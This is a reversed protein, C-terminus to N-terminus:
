AFGGRNDSEFDFDFDFDLGDGGGGPGPAPASPPPAPPRPAAPKPSAPVQAAPAAFEIDVEFGPASPPPAPAPPAVPRPPAPRQAPAPARPAPRPSPPVARPPAPPVPQPRQAASPPGPTTGVAAQPFRWTDAQPDGLSGQPPGVDPRGPGVGRAYAHFAGPTFLRLVMARGMRLPKEYPLPVAQEKTMRVEDLWSGNSSRDMVKWGEETYAVVLHLRSVAPHDLLVVSRADRGVPIPVGPTRTLFTVQGQSHLPAGADYARDKEYPELLVVDQNPHREAFSQATTTRLLLLIESVPRM